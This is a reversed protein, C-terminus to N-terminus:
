SSNTNNMMKDIRFFWLQDIFPKPMEIDGVTANITILNNGIKNPNFPKSLTSYDFWEIKIKNCTHCRYYVVRRIDLKASWASRGSSRFIYKGKIEIDISKFQLYHCNHLNGKAKWINEIIKDNYIMNDSTSHPTPPIRAGENV